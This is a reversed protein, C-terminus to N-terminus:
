KVYDVPENKFPSLNHIFERISNIKDIKENLELNELLNFILNEIETELNQKKM